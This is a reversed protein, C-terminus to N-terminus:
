GITTLHDIARGLAALERELREIQGVYGSPVPEVSPPTKEPLSGYVRENFAAVLNTMFRVNDALNGIADLPKMSPETAYQGVPFPDPGCPGLTAGALGKASAEREYQM